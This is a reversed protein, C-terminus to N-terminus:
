QECLFSVTLLIQLAGLLFYVLQFRTCWKGYDELGLSLKCTLNICGYLVYDVLLTNIRTMTIRNDYYIIKIM